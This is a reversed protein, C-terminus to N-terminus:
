DFRRQLVDNSEIVATLMVGNIAYCIGFGSRVSVVSFRCYDSLLAGPRRAPSFRVARVACLRGHHVRVFFTRYQRVITEHAPAAGSRITSEM